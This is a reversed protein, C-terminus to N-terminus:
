HDLGSAIFVLSSSVAILFSIPSLCSSTALIAETLRRVTKFHSLPPLTRGLLAFAILSARPRCKSRSLLALPKHPVYEDVVQSPCSGPCMGWRRSQIYVHAHGTIPSSSLPMTGPSFGAELDTDAVLLPFGGQSVHLTIAEYLYGGLCGGLLGGLSGGLSGGLYSNHNVVVQPPTCRGLLLGVVRGLLM